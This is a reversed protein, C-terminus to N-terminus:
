LFRFLYFSVDTTLRTEVKIFCTSQTDRQHPLHPCDCKLRFESNATSDSGWCGWLIYGETFELAGNNKQGLARSPGTEVQEVM